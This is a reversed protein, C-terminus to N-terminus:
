ESDESGKLSLYIKSFNDEQKIILEQRRALNLISLFTVVVYDKKLVDFLEEFEIKKKKTLIEKIEHSRESVSYEKKTIKTNLPKELEKRKLFNAFAEMLNDLTIDGLDMDESSKYNNINEGIKTYILKREEELTKFDGTAEKYQKYELLRNILKERPDEEYEAELSENKPLLISSKMEILEAAMVLYESAIDLNMNEMAEIYDLYQKTIKEISIDIIDIDDKKILHLLLDIPGEFDNITVKYDM